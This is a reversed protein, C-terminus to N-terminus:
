GECHHVLVWVTRTRKMCNRRTCIQQRAELGYWGSWGCSSICENAYLRLIMLEKQLCILEDSAFTGTTTAAMAADTTGGGPVQTWGSWGTADLINVYERQDFGTGFLYLKNNFATAAMAVDTSGGGYVQAWGSWNGLEDLINVDERQDIGTGFLYLKNNFATAAM